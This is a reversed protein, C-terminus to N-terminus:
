KGGIPSFSVSECLSDLWFPISIFFFPNMKSDCTDEACLLFAFLMFCFKVLWFCCLVPIDYPEPAQQSSHEPKKRQFPHEHASEQPPAHDPSFHKTHTTLSHPNRPRQSHVSLPAICTHIMVRKRLLPRSPALLFPFGFPVTIPPYHTQM